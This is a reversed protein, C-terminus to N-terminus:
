LNVPAGAGVLERWESRARGPPLPFWACRVEDGFCAAVVVDLAMQDDAVYGTNYAVGPRDCDCDALRACGACQARYERETPTFEVNLWRVVALQDRDLPRFPPM